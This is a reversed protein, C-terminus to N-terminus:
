IAPPVVKWLRGQGQVAGASPDDGVLLNGSPDVWLGGTSSFNVLSGNLLGGSALVDQAGTSVRYRRVLSQVAPTDAVYLVGAKDVAMATPVAVLFPTAEAVCTGSCSTAGVLRTVAAAEALYLDNGVFAIGSVGHTTDLTHGITELTPSASAPNAFRQINASRSGVYLKGDAGLAVTSPRTGALGPLLFPQGVTETAPDFALRWVGASKSSQDPVYV